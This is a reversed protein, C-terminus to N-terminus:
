KMVCFVEFVLFIHKRTTVIRNGIPPLAALYNIIRVYIKDENNDCIKM